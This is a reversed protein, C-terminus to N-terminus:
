QLVGCPIATGSADFTEFERLLKDFTVLETQACGNSALLVDYSAGLSPHQRVAVIFEHSTKHRIPFVAPCTHFTYPVYSPKPKVRYSGTPSMFSPNEIAHWVDSGIPRYEITEGNAFAAIIPLMAKYHERLETTTITM